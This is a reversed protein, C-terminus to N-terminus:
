SARALTVGFRAPADTWWRVADFGAAALEAAIGDRRFKASIETHLEEGDAFSVALDLAAVRVRMPRTARLRMEIWEREPDWLAVHAFAEPDFDADLQRNLVRLVNRNFEATVGASDDYAAVLTAPDKVLDTGLLFWEGPHLVARLGRLFRAREGPPFNGITGGLFAVLRGDGAPIEDLHRTFDGAIANVDLDPYDADIAIAAARLAPESVDLPVFRGLTGHRHLADLLLRTKDSSGSGLEVLTKAATVEAIETAHATLAAREARTPYYEPLETIREFLESGRSDYFWKPPLTKPAATLGARADDRLARALDAETLHIDLRM